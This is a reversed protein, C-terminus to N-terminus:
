GNSCSCIFGDFLDNNVTVFQKSQSDLDCFM